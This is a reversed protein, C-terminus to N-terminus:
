FLQCLQARAEGDAHLVELDAARAVDEARLLGAVDRGDAVVHVAAQQFLSDFAQLGAALDFGFLQHGFLLRLAAFQFQAQAGEQRIRPDGVRLYAEVNQPLQGGHAAVFIRLLREGHQRVAKAANRLFGLGEHM